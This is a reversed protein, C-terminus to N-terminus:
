SSTLAALASIVSRFTKSVPVVNGRIASARLLLGSTNVGYAVCNVITTLTALAGTLPVDVTDELTVSGTEVLLESVSSVAMAGYVRAGRRFSPVPRGPDSCSRATADGGRLGARVADGEGVGPRRVRREAELALQADGSLTGDGRWTLTAHRSRGTPVRTMGPTFAVARGKLWDAADSYM